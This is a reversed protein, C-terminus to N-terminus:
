SELQVMQWDTVNIDQCTLGVFEHLSSLNDDILLIEVEHPHVVSPSDTTSQIRTKRTRYDRMREASTKKCTAKIDQCPLGVFEARSRRVLDLGVAPTM